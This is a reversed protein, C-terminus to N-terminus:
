DCRKIWGAIDELVEKSITEEIAGYNLANAYTCHQFLHNLADYEKIVNRGNEPLNDRLIPLNDKSLVQLDNSGNLAFVPCKIKRIVECPDYALFWDMWKGGASPLLTLNEM